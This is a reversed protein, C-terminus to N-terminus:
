RKVPCLDLGEKARAVVEAVAQLIAGERVVEQLGEEVVNVQLTVEQIVMEEVDQHVGTMEIVTLEAGIMMKGDQMAVEAPQEEAIRQIGPLLDEEPIVEGEERRVEGAGEGVVMIMKKTKKM